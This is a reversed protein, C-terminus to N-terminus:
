ADCKILNNRKRLLRIRSWRAAWYHSRRRKM